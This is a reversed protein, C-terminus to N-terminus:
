PDTSQYYSEEKSRYMEILNQKKRYYNKVCQTLITSLVTSSKSALSTSDTPTFDDDKHKPNDNHALKIPSPINMTSPFQLKTRCPLTDLSMNVAPTVNFYM